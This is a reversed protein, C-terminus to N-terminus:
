TAPHPPPQPHFWLTEISDYAKLLTLDVWRYVDRHKYIPKDLYKKFIMNELFM